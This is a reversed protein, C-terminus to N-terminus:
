RRLGHRRRGRYARGNGSPPQSDPPRNRCESLSAIAVIPPTQDDRSCANFIVKGKHLLPSEPYGWGMGGKGSGFNKWANLNWRVAGTALDVAYFSADPTTSLAIGDAVLPTSRTGSFRKWGSSGLRVHRELRGDLTFVYLAHTEGGTAYVKGGSVCVGSYGAGITYKWLLEPGGEPWTKLLGSAPYVGSSNLGRYGFGDSSDAAMGVIAALALCLGVFGMRQKAGPVRSYQPYGCGRDFLLRPPGGNTTGGEAQASRRRFLPLFLFFFLCFFTKITRRPVPLM